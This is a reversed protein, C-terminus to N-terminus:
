WRRVVRSASCNRRRRGPALTSVTESEGSPLNKEDGSPCSKQLSGDTRFTPGPSQRGTASEEDNASTRSIRRDSSSVVTRPNRGSTNRTSWM